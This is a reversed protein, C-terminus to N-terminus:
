KQAFLVNMHIYIYPKEFFFVRTVAIRNKVKSLLDEMNKKHFEVNYLVNLNQNQERKFDGLLDLKLENIKYWFRIYEVM